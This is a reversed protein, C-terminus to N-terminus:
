YILAQAYKFYKCLLLKHYNNMRYTPCICPLHTDRKVKEAFALLYSPATDPFKILNVITPSHIYKIRNREMKQQSSQLQTNLTTNMLLYQSLLEIMEVISCDDEDNRTDLEYFKFESLISKLADCCYKSNIKKRKSELVKDKKLTGCSYIFEKNKLYHIINNQLVEEM